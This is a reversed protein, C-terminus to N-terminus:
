NMKKYRKDLKICDAYPAPMCGSAELIVVKQPKKSPKNNKTFLSVVKNVFARFFAKFRNIM